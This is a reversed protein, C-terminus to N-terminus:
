FVYENGVLDFVEKIFEKDNRRYNGACKPCRHGNVIFASPRIEWVCGCKNHQCKIKNSAGNYSELFTYEDSVLSYVQEIFEENTKKRTM